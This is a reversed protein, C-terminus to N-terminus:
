WKIPKDGPTRDRFGLGRVWKRSGRFGADGAITVGSVEGDIKLITSLSGAITVGSVEGDIKLITSLSGAITM